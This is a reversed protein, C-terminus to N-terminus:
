NLDWFCISLACFARRLLFLFLFELRFSFPGLFFFLLLLCSVNIRPGLRKLMLSPEAWDNGEASKGEASKEGGGDSKKREELGLNLWRKPIESVSKAQTCYEDSLHVFRCTSWVEDHQESTLQNQRSSCYLSIADFVQDESTVSLEDQDLLHCVAGFHSIESLLCPSNKFFQEFKSTVIKLAISYLRDSHFATSLGYLFLSDKAAVEEVYKSLKLFAM